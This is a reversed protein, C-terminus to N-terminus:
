ATAKAQRKTGQQAEALYYSGITFGAAAFQAFIGEWTPYVGFWLGAWYPPNFGFIPHISMWGVAQLTQITTGVMTVLVIGILVGTGVLIKMYPLKRQLAFAAYGILGVLVMAIAVGQLVIGAGADLVLAQLFLVTEFGERYVSVFGLIMLGFVQGAQAGLVGKKMKHFRAMWDTWYVKHFFWNTILLLVAIAILSVVAELREGYRTFLLIVQRALVWTLATAGLALLSGAALPRRLGKYEGKRMSALLAALIVVAELGERFVIVASNVIIATPSQAGDGLVREAEVLHGRMDEVIAEIEDYSAQRAIAPALGEQRSSGFWFFSHIIASLRPSIGQLRLEPGFDFLAYAQIRTNEAQEYEGNAVQELLGDLLTYIVTFNGSSDGLAVRDGLTDEVLALSENVREEIIAPEGLEQMVANMETLNAELQAVADPDREQIIPRLEFLTAEAQDRFTIAERYETEITIQGNRVGDRYEIYILDIFIYLLQARQTIDEENLDVPQYDAILARVDSIGEATADWDAELAATSLAESSEKLDIAAAEGQDDLYDAALFRQYGEVQGVWEAARITYNLETSQELNNLASRMRFFAADRLDEGVIRSTEESGIEGAAFAEVARASPNEVINVKTALRFERLRIWADATEADGAKIAALSVEYGAWVLGTWLRGRAYSLAEADEAEAAALADKFSDQISTDIDPFGAQLTPALAVEYQQQAAILAEVAGDSDGSLLLARQAEFTKDRIDEGAQWPPIDQAIIPSPFALLLVFVLGVIIPTRKM